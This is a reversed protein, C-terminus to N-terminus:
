RSEILIVNHGLGSLRDALRQAEGKSGAPMRVRYYTQWETQFLSIAVDPFDPRLKAALAEANDRLIFAGVQVAFRQGAPAQPVDQVVELRIPITGPVVMDLMRAAAYSLDIIRDGVFPGRDNIRVTVTRGNLLNTIEVVTGFPLTRHAATLEHMNYIEGNSTPRGHFEQGYWSAIGSQVGNVVPRLRPRCGTLLAGVALAAALLGTLRTKM